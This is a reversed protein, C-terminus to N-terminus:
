ARKSALRAALAVTVISWGNIILEISIFTGIVVLSSAPWKAFILIGLVLALVGGFMVWLWGFEGKMRFALVIRMVGVATIAGALMLTFIGSVLLPNRIVVIGAFVYLLSILAHWLKAKWGGCQFSQLFQVGGSVLLIIGYFMVSALTIFTAMGLGVLGLGLTMVGFALMWAWRQKLEGFHGGGLAASEGNSM